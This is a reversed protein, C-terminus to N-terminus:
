SYSRLAFVNAAGQEEFPSQATRATRGTGAPPPSSDM